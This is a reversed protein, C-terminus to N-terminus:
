RAGGTLQNATFTIGATGTASELTNSINSPMAIIVKYSKITGAAWDTPGTSSLLNGTVGSANTGLVYTASPNSSTFGTCSGDAATLGSGQEVSITVGNAGFLDTSGSTPTFGSSITVNGDVSGGNTVNLCRTLTDGPILNTVNLLSTVTSPVTSLSLSGTGLTGGTSKTDSWTAFVGFSVFVAVATLVIGSALLKRGRSRPGNKGAM